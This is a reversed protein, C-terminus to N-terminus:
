ENDNRWALYSNINHHGLLIANRDLSWPTEGEKILHILGERVMPFLNTPEQPPPEIIQETPDSYLSDVYNLYSKGNLDWPKDEWVKQLLDNTWQHMYPEENFGYSDIFSAIKFADKFPIGLVDSCHQQAETFREAERRYQEEDEEQQEESWQKYQLDEAESIAEMEKREQQYDKIAAESIDHVGSYDADPKLFGKDSLIKNLNGILTENDDHIESSWFNQSNQLDILEPLNKELRGTGARDMFYKQRWADGARKRKDAEISSTYKRLWLNMYDQRAHANKINIDHFRQFFDLDHGCELSDGEHAVEHEVLSFIYSITRLPDNKLRKVININIAIYSSADTWAEAVNSHGLLINFKPYGLRGNPMIREGACRYAYDALCHKLATWARKTEKDLSKKDTVLQTKEVFAKQLTRYDVYCPTYLNREDYQRQTNRWEQEDPLLASKKITPIIQELCALFDYINNCGFRDITSPHIVTIVKGSAIAEAKPIDETYEPMTFKGEKIKLDGRTCIQIFRDFTIHKKGPLITIIEENKYINYSDMSGELLSRASRARRAETKRNNGLSAAYKSALSKLKKSIELWVPCTKRLIETRSVNLAIPKKTVITGGAGWQHSSDNRVLIGQNYISMAGEEKLRYYAYDDEYNWKEKDPDKSLIKGNFEVEIPTYRILDRIEQAITMMEEEELTDYWEGEIHCGPHQEIIEELEYHYGMVKTDVDMTWFNSTWKTRAFAMIQGRGLRFRGFTADGELHPTGFRGFYRLVDGKNSFGKGDDTCQFGNENLTLTAKKSGADVSNMILEIIAKGISGAQSYIIHHIIQPDLEFPFRM